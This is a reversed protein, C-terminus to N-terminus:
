ASSGAFPNRRDLTQRVATRQGMLRLVADCDDKATWNGPSSEFQPRAFNNAGILSVGPFHVLHYFDLAQDPNRSCGLLSVRGFRAVCGLTQVLAAYVGTVDIAVPVGKGGTIRKVTEAYDDATPDLAVDPAWKWPWPGANCPQPRGRDGSRCRGSQM